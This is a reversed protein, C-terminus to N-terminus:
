TSKKGAKKAKYRKLRLYTDLIGDELKARHVRGADYEFRSDEGNPLTLYLTDGDSARVPLFDGLRESYVLTGAAPAEFFLRILSASVPQRLLEAEGKGDHFYYRGNREETVLHRRPEGNVEVEIESRLLDAGRYVARQTTVTRMSKIFKFVVERRSQYVVEEGTKARTIIWKGVKAKNAFLDYRVTEVQAQTPLSGAIALAFLCFLWAKKM